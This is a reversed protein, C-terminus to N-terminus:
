YTAAHVATEQVADQQQSTQIAKNCIKIYKEGETVFCPPYKLLMGELLKNNHSNYFM